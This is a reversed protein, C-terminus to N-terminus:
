FAGILILLTFTFFLVVTLAIIQLYPAHNMQDLYQNVKQDKEEPRWVMPKMITVEYKTIAMINSIYPCLM